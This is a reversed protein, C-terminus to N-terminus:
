TRRSHFSRPDKGSSSRIASSCLRPRRSSGYALCASQWTGAEGRRAPSGNRRSQETARGLIPCATAAQAAARAGAGLEAARTAVREMCVARVAAEVALTGAVRAAAAAEDTAAAGDANVVM